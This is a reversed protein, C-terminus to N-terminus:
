KKLMWKQAEQECREAMADVQGALQVFPANEALPVGLTYKRVLKAVHRLYGAAAPTPKAALGVACELLSPERVRGTYEACLATYFRGAAQVPTEDLLSFGNKWLWGRLEARKTAPVFIFRKGAWWFQPAAALMEAATVGSVGAIVIDDAEDPSLVHLGDGLRCEVAAGCRHKEVLARARALPAPRIDAAVVRRAAGTRALYVALKGHDCGIDAVLAGRRVYAAAALLRADLAPVPPLQEQKEATVQLENGLWPPM